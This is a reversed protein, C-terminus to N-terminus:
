MITITLYKTELFSHQQRAPRTFCFLIIEVVWCPLTIKWHLNLLQYSTVLAMRSKPNSRKRKQNASFHRETKLVQVLVPSSKTIRQFMWCRNKWWYFYISFGTLFDLSEGGDFHMGFGTMVLWFTMVETCVDRPM